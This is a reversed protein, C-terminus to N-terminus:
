DIKAIPCLSKYYRSAQIDIQAYVGVQENKANALVESTPAIILSYGIASALDNVARTQNSVVFYVQNDYARTRNLALWMEQAYKLSEDDSYIENPVTWSSPQVIVDAGLNSLKKYMMPFRIDYGIALGIKAFDLEIIKIEMGASLKSNEKEGVFDLLHIKRYKGAIVGNRDFVYTTNYYKDEDKELISGGVINTRYKKALESFFELTEQMLNDNEITCFNEPLVVLDLTKDSYKKIFHEVKKRNIEPKEQAINIQINLIGNMTIRIKDCCFLEIFLIM